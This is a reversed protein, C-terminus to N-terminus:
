KKRNAEVPPTETKLTLAHVEGTTMQAGILDYVLRHQDVRSKGEFAPSIIRVEYHDQTGTLDKVEVSTDPALKELHKRLEDPTM